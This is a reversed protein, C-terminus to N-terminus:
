CIGIYLMEFPHWLHGSAAGEANKRAAQAPLGEDQFSWVHEPLERGKGPICVLQSNKCDQVGHSM